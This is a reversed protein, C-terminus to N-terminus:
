REMGRDLDKGRSLTRGRAQEQAKERQAQMKEQQVERALAAREQLQALKAEAQPRVTELAEAEEREAAPLAKVREDRKQEELALRHAASQEDREHRSMADDVRVGTRHGYQALTGMAKWRADGQDTAYDRQRGYTEIASESYAIGKRIEELRDAAAAYAPSVLRAADAVTMDRPAVADRDRTRDAEMARSLSLGDLKRLDRRLAERRAEEPTELAAPQTPAHASEAAEQARARALEVKARLSDAARDARMGSPDPGGEAAPHDREEALRGQASQDQTPHGQVPRGQAPHGEGARAATTSAADLDRTDASRREAPHGQALRGDTSRTEAPREQVVESVVIESRPVLGRREAYDLTTEKANSRSLRETLAALDRFEDRGTYLTVAARHRTMGVYALHRDMSESALVFARDVTAGQSKHITTAYGHDVARYHQADITVVRGPLRGEADLRVRLAGEEAREVTGLMGNKVGLTRDNELFVLRDGAAFRREGDTTLFAVEDTLAAEAQRAERIDDNLARVDTRRHALVIRSSDPHAARDAMVDRVIAARAQDRDEAFRVAGHADYAALGEATRNRGFDVSAQRQWAEGQRRVAELEAFGIRDAIARFAAGANIPQLQEPDGVLVLKAGAQDVAAVFRALQASSVMGAEDIVFVDGRQLVDHGRKWSLEWSALTRSPIGSSQELGEAAKGALAAGKVRRMTGDGNWAKQAAALMTSKGAGALGVVAAIREPGTVHRVAERQEDSLTRHTALSAETLARQAGRGLMGAQPAAMRDAREAMDREIQFQAQTTYRALQVVRGKAGGADRQEPQLELLAPSAMVRAFAMQFRDPQDIYRHLARAVDHRDFVSKEDTLISLVEEPRERIRAANRRAAEADIRKREVAGGRRTVGTAHVGVHQTPEIELGRELHSRHDVRVDLNARALAHNVQEEWDQRIARLQMQSTPRDESLLRKNDWELQTKEGLGGPTVQRTTMLLHAHRNRLDKGEHPQHIAVDVAAGYRDALGQAFGRTLDLRQADDLEHPLALVFERATRADSRKEAFEAANWLAARDRVWEPLPSPLVSGMPVSGTPASASEGAMGRPLVIETHDIGRRGTYAHTVGDRENTLAEGARYAAAAVASRGQTRCVPKMSLHYIAM